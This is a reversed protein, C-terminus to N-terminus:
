KHQKSAYMAGEWDAKQHLPYMHNGLFFQLIREGMSELEIVLSFPCRSTHLKTTLTSLYLRRVMIIELGLLPHM